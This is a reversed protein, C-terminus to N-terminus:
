GTCAWALEECQRMFWAACDSLAAERAEAATDARATRAGGGRGRALAVAGCAQFAFAGCSPGCRLLAADQASGSTSRNTAKAWNGEFDYAIASWLEEEPSTAATTLSSKLDAFPDTSTTTVTTTARLPNHFKCATLSALVCAFALVLTISRRRM